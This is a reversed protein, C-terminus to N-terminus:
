SRRRSNHYPCLKCTLLEHFGTGGTQRQQETPPEDRLAGAHSAPGMLDRRAIHAPIGERRAIDALCKMEERERQESGSRPAKKPLFAGAMVELATWGPGDNRLSIGGPDDELPSTRQNAVERGPRAKHETTLGAGEEEHAESKSATHSDQTTQTSADKKGGGPRPGSMTRDDATNKDSQPPNTRRGFSGKLRKQETPSRQQQGTIM